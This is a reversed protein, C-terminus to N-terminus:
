NTKSLPWTWRDVNAVAKRMGKKREIIQVNKLFHM